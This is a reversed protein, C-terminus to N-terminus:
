ASPLTSVLPVVIPSNSSVGIKGRWSGWWNKVPHAPSFPNVPDWEQM